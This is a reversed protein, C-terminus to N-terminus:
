TSQLILVATGTNPMLEEKFEVSKQELHHRVLHIRSTKLCKYSFYFIFLICFMIKIMLNIPDLRM